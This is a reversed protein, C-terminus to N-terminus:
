TIRASDDIDDGFGARVLQMAIKKFEVAVGDEIGAVEKGGLAVLELAVLESARYAPRNHNRVHIVAMVPSEEKKAVLPCPQSINSGATTENRRRGIQVTIERGEEIRVIRGIGKAPGDPDNIRLRTLREWPVHNWRGAEVWGGQTEFLKQGLHCPRP